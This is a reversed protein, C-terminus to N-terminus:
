GNLNWVNLGDRLPPPPLVLHIARAVSGHGTGLRMEAAFFFFFSFFLFERRLSVQSLACLRSLLRRRTFNGSQLPRLLRSHVSLSVSWEVEYADLAAIVDGEEAAAAATSERRERAM